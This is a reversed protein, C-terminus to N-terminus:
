GRRSVGDPTDGQQAARRIAFGRGDPELTVAQVCLEDAILEPQVDDQPLGLVHITSWPGEAAYEDHHQDITGLLGYFSRIVDVAGGFTTVGSGPPSTDSHQEWVSQAASENHPSKILWVHASRSLALLDGDFKRDLIFYVDHTM